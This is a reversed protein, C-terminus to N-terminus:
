RDDKRDRTAAAPPAVIQRDALARTLRELEDAADRCDLRLLQNLDLDHSWRRLRDILKKM